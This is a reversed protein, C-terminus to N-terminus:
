LSNGNLDFNVNSGIEKVKDLEPLNFLAMLQEKNEAIANVWVSNNGFGICYKPKHFTFEVGIIVGSIIKMGWGNNYIGHVPKGMITSLDM